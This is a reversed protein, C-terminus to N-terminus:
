AHKSRYGPKLFTYTNWIGHITELKQSTSLEPCALVGIDGLFRHVQDYRVHDYTDRKLQHVYFLLKGQSEFDMENMHKNANLNFLHHLDHLVFRTHRFNYIERGFLLIVMKKILSFGAWAALGTPILALIAATLQSQDAIRKFVEILQGIPGEVDEGFRIARQELTEIFLALIPLLTSVSGAKNFLNQDNMTTLIELYINRLTAIDFAEAKGKIYEFETDNVEEKGSGFWGKKGKTEVYGRVVKVYTEVFRKKEEDSLRVKDARTLDNRLIRKGTLRNVARKLEDAVDDIEGRKGKNIGKGWLAGKIRTLPGEINDAYFSSLAKIVKHEADAAVGPNKYLYWCIGLTTATLLTNQVTFYGPMKSEGIEYDLRDKYRPLRHLIDQLCNMVGGLTPKIERKNKIFPMKQMTAVLEGMWSIHQESSVEPNFRNLQSNLHGLLTFYKKQLRKLRKLNDGIERYQSKGTCLKLPSKHLNYSLSRNGQSRWYTIHADIVDLNRLLAIKVFRATREVASVMLVLRVRTDSPINISKLTEINQSLRSPSYSKDIANIFVLVKKLEKKNIQLLEIGTIMNDVNELPVAAAIVRACNSSQAQIDFISFFIVINLFLVVKYFYNTPM